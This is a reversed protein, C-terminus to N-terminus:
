TPTIRSNDWTCSWYRDGPNIDLPENFMYTLQNYFDYTDGRVTCEESGDSREVWMNYGTGLIHMHPFVGHLTIGPIPFDIGDYSYSEPIYQSYEATYAPDGAPIKFDYGGLPLLMLPTGVSDVTRFEYGSQDAVSEDQAGANYYHLQIVLNDDPTVLFGHDPAFEIPTAGSGM